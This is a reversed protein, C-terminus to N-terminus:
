PALEISPAQYDPVDIIQVTVAGKGIGEGGSGQSGRVAANGDSVIYEIVVERSPFLSDNSYTVQRLLENVDKTTPIFPGYGAFHIHLEGDVNTFTAIVANQDGVTKTITGTGDPGD